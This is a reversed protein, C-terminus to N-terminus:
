GASSSRDSPSVHASRAHRRESRSFDLRWAVLVALAQGGLTLLTGVYVHTLAFGTDMGWYYSAVGILVFRVQNMGVCILMGVLLALIGRGPSLRGVALLVAQFIVLPALVVLVTCELTVDFGTLRSPTLWMLYFTDRALAEIPTLDLLSAAVFAEARRILVNHVLGVVLATVLASALIVGAARSFRSATRDERRARLPLGPVERQSDSASGTV